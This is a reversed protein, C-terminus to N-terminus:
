FSCALIEDFEGQFDQSLLKDAEDLVIRKCHLVDALRKELLDLLRGPTAVILHPKTNLHTIDDRIDTGGTIVIVQFNMRM